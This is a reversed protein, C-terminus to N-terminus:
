KSPGKAFIARNARMQVDELATLAVAKNRGNPVLLDIQAGLGIILGRLTVVDPHESATFFRETAAALAENIRAVKADEATMNADASNTPEASPDPYNM